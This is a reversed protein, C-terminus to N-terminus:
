EKEAAYAVGYAIVLIGNPIVWLFFMAPDETIPYTMGTIAGIVGGQVLLIFLSM